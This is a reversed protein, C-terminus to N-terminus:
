DSNNKSHWRSKTAKFNSGNSGGIYIRLRLVNRPIMKTSFFRVLPCHTHYVHRSCRCNVNKLAINVINIDKHYVCCDIHIPPPRNDNLRFHTHIRRYM